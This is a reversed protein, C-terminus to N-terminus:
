SLANEVDEDTYIGRAQALPLLQNRVAQFEQNLLYERLAHNIVESKSVGRKAYAELMKAVRPRLQVSTLGLRKKDKARKRM